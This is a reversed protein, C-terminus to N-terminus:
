VVAGLLEDAAAVVDQPKFPKAFCRDVGFQEAVRLVDIKTLHGGGSIAILKIEPNHTKIHRTVEVGDCLPMIMDTIVLDVSSSKLARLGVEGNKADIVEYGAREFASRLFARIGDEDDIILVRAMKAWKKLTRANFSIGTVSGRKPARLSAGHCGPSQASRLCPM